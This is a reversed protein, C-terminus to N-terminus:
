KAETGSVKGDTINIYLCHQSNGPCAIKLRGGEDVAKTGLKAMADQKSMGTPISALLNKLHDGTNPASM